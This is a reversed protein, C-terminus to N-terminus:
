NDLTWMYVILLVSWLIQRKDWNGITLNAAKMKLMNGINKHLLELRAMQESDLEATLDIGLETEELPMNLTNGGGLPILANQTSLEKGVQFYPTTLSRFM